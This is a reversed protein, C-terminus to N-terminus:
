MTPCQPEGPEYGAEDEEYAEGSDKMNAKNANFSQLPDLEIVTHEEVTDSVNGSQMSAHLPPPLLAHLTQQAHEPLTQPFEINLKLFLNGHVFPNKCTPMGEDRVAKMTRLQAQSDPDSVMYITYGSCRQQASLIEGRVATKFYTKGKAADIVFANVDIGRSKLQTECLNKVIHVDTCPAEAVTPISPCDADPIQEWTKTDDEMSLPDFGHAMPKVVEGPASKVLLKRGDLHTLEIQFGCLAEVLAITREVFLDAGRRKFESHRQEKVIFVVDGTEADPHEDAKGHFIIKHGDPAGKQVHVELVEREQRHKFIKGSGECATCTSSMMGFPTSELKAGRGHCASCANIPNEKDIVKRRVAMKKVQGAYLQELTMPLEHLVDRTRRKGKRESQRVGKELGEEGLRDYLDRKVPDTLVEHARNIRKFQEADGNPKDPHVEKALRRYAKTIQNKSASQGVGLVEYLTAKQPAAM